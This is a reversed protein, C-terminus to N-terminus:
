TSTSFNSSGWSSDKTKWWLKPYKSYGFEDKLIGLAEFYSWRDIDINHMVHVEGGQYQLTPDREFCGRHHIKISFTMGICMHYFM